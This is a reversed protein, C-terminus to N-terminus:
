RHSRPSWGVLAFAFAWRAPVFHSLQYVLQSASKLSFPQSAPSRHHHFACLHFPVQKPQCPRVICFSHTSAPLYRILSGIQNKPNKLRVTHSVTARRTPAAPASSTPGALRSVALPSKPPKKNSSWPFRDFSSPAASPAACRATFECSPLKRSPSSVAVDDSARPLGPQNAPVQFSATTRGDQARPFCM